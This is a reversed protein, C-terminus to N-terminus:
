HARHNASTSAGQDPFSKERVGGVTVRIVDAEMADLPIFFFCSDLPLTEREIKRLGQM